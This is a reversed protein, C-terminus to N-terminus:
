ADATSSKAPGRRRRPELLEQQEAYRQRIDFDRPWRSAEHDPRQMPETM